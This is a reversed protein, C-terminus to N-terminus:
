PKMELRLESIAGYDLTFVTKVTAILEDMYKQDSFFTGRPPFSSLKCFKGQAKTLM